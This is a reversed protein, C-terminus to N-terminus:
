GQQQSASLKCSSEVDLRKAKTVVRIVGSRSFLATLIGMIWGLVQVPRSWRWQRHGWRYDIAGALGHPNPIHQLHSVSFGAQDLALTLSPPTFHLRHRPLDLHFWYSGAWRAVIGSWNPVEVILIGRKRLSVRLQQLATVPNDLHELAHWLTIVDYHNPPLVADEISCIQVHLGAQHARAAAAPDPEVGDVRWGLRLLSAGYAGSGCGVDLLNGPPAPPPM